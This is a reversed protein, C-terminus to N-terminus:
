DIEKKNGSKECINLIDKRSDPNINMRQSSIMKDRYPIDNCLRLARKVQEKIDSSSYSMGHYHFFEANRTECGPIPATHIIPIKKAAAETSSLGGPKTFLVDCGDMLISIRDTFGLITINENCSFEKTLTKQLKTNNGCVLFIEVNMGCEGIIQEVLDKLNGFGMSGSMILFWKENENLREAFLQKCEKRAHDKSQASYFIQKVPIGYPLLKDRVLGKKVCEEILHEHPVIYYDLQTEEMFPICTYDTMVFVTLAPLKNSRKLATLAEAPFLHTCIITDYENNNIYELLKGCYLKNAFYVPSKSKYTSVKSGANYLLRFLRTRTSFVYMDSATQSVAPSILALADVVECEIKHMTFYEWIAKAASNHGEGTACSLILIRM